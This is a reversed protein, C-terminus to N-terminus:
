ISRTVEKGHRTRISLFISAVGVVVAVFLVGLLINRVIWNGLISNTKKVM